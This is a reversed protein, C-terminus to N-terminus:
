GWPHQNPLDPTPGSFGCQGRTRLHRKQQPDPFGVKLVVLTPLYNCCHRVWPMAIIAEYPNVTKATTRYLVTTIIKAPSM